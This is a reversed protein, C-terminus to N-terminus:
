SSGTAPKKGPTKPARPVGNRAATLEHRWADFKERTFLGYNDLTGRLAVLNHERIVERAPRNPLVVLAKEDDPHQFVLAGQNSLGVDRRREWVFGLKELLRIVDAYRLQKTV